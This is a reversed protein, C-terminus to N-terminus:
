ATSFRALVEDLGERLQISVADLSLGLVTAIAPPALGGWAALALVERRRPSTSAMTEILAARLQRDESGTLDVCQQASRCTSGARNRRHQHKREPAPVVDM